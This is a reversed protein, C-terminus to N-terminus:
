SELLVLCLKDSVLAREGDGERRWLDGLLAHTEASARGSLVAKELEVKARAYRTPPEKKEEDGNNDGDKAATGKKRGKQKQKNKQAAKKKM